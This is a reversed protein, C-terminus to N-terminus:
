GQSIPCLQRQVSIPLNNDTFVAFFVTILPGGKTILWLWRKATGLLTEWKDESRYFPWGFNLSGDLFLCYHTWPSACGFVQSDRLCFLSDQAFHTTAKTPRGYSQLWATEEFSTELSKPWLGTLNSIRWLRVPTNEDSNCLFFTKM